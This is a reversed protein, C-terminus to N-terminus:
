FRSIIEGHEKLKDIVELEYGCKEQWEKLLRVDGDRNKGFRFDKGVCIYRADMKKVLISQIFAEASMNKTEEQFPFIIEREIGLRELVADKEKQTYIKPTKGLDFTFATSILGDKKKVNSLLYRHGKHIGDFKGLSVSSDKLQFDLGTIIKM